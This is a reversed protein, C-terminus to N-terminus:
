NAGILQMRLADRPASKLDLSGGIGEKGGGGHTTAEALVTETPTLFLTYGSSRTLFKVRSDTQGQNAEFFLPVRISKPAVSPNTEGVGSKTVPNPAQARVGFASLLILTTLIVIRRMIFGRMQERRM